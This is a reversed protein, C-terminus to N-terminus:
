CGMRGFSIVLTQNVKEGDINEAPHWNGPLKFVSEKVKEDVAPFGSSATIEAYSVVGEKSITIRLQGSQLADNSIDTTVEKTNKELFYILAEKGWSYAAQKEPVVTIYPTWTSEELAGTHFSKETYDAKILLNTSYDSSQLLKLQAPSLVGSDGTEKINTEKDKEIVIISLSKYSVIRGAHEEAIFDDFSTVKNLETKKFSKYRTDISFLFNTAENKLPEETRLENMSIPENGLTEAMATADSKGNMFGFAPLSLTLLVICIIMISKKM